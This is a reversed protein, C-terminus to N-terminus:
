IPDLLHGGKLNETKREKDFRVWREGAYKLEGRYRIWINM